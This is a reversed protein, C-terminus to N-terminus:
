GREARLAALRARIEVRESWEASNADMFGLAIELEGIAEDIRGLGRYADSLSEHLLMLNYPKHPPYDDRVRTYHELARAYQGLSRMVHGLTWHAYAQSHVTSGSTDGSADIMAVATQLEHSARAHDGLEFMVRGLEIRASVALPSDAPLSADYIRIAHRVAVQAADLRGLFQNITSLLDYAAGTTPHDPGLFEESFAIRRQWHVLALEYDDVQMAAFAEALALDLEAEPDGGAMEIQAEATRVWHAYAESEPEQYSANVAAAQAAIGHAEVRVALEYAELALNGGDEVERDSAVGASVLLARAVLSADGMRKARALATAARSEYNNDTGPDHHHRLLDLERELSARGRQLAHSVPRDLLAVSREGRVVQTTTAEASTAEASTPEDEASAAPAQWVAGWM